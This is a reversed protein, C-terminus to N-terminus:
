RRWSIKQIDLIEQKILSNDFNPLTSPKRIYFGQVYDVGMNILAELQGRTEVGEGLIWKDHKKAFDIIKLIIAQKNPDTEVGSILFRDLKILKAKLSLVSSFSNYGLGYDDLAVFAGWERIKKLKSSLVAENLKENETFEVVLKGLIDGYLKELEEFETDKLIEGPVSNICLKCQNFMEKHKSYLALSKFFTIKEVKWLVGQSSAIQILKTPTSLVDNQPRMLSEYGFIDGTKASVIPQFVYEVLQNDLVKDLEEKGSLIFSESMYASKNFERLEGKISHKVKYMAFDAFKILEEFDCSDKGYWALGSSMRIKFQSGTPLIICEKDLSEYLNVLLQRVEDEYDFGYFFVYFEDGSMRGVVANKSFCGSILQAATKIYIDGVDHGYTDNVYKLNDLDFMAFAAVKLDGKSFIQMARRHFAFRNFIKTLVDYDREFNLVQKELVDKTVDMVVGLLAKENKISKIKVWKQPNQSCLYVDEEGDPTTSSLINDLIGFFVSKEIICDDKDNLPLKLMNVLTSSVTVYDSMIKHEFAGLELNVLSIIKDTKLISELINENLYEISQSLDDIESIGTRRLSVVQGPNNKRVQDALSLIPKAFYYGILCAVAAGVFISLLFNYLLATSVRQPFGLINSEHTMGMLYWRTDEFPTNSNYLMIQELHSAVPAVPNNISYGSYGENIVKLDLPKNVSLINRQASGRVILPKVVGTSNDITVVAYGYSNNESIEQAPLLKYLYDESIEIGAVGFVNGNKDILPKSYTIVEVQNGLFTDSTHWYGLYRFDKTLQAADFPKYFIDKDTGELTLGYSWLNALPLNYKKAIDTSGVKVYIDTSEETDNLSPDYDKIYLASHSANENINDNLIVFAGTTATSRLMNVLTPTIEDLLAVSQAESMDMDSFSKHNYVKTIETIYSDINSWRNHLESEIYNKRTRIKEAFLGFANNELSPIVRSAIITGLTFLVQLLIVSTLIFALKFVISKRNFRWKRM